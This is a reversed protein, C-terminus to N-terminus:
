VMTLGGSVSITQGTIYDAYNSSLFLVSGAIDDPQAFRRFPIASKFAELMKESQQRLLPTDTPGPCVCNVNISYRAMERALSKTFGILGAKAGAYVAEGSSGVRGADSSINIIKGANAAIMPDLFARAVTIPGVLNIAVVKDWLAPDNKVFAEIKDWGAGNVVVDAKPCKAHVADAFTKVSAADTVDLRIFEAIGGANSISRAAEAGMEENLDGIFVRAGASALMTATALGIGSAGGTVVAVKSDLKM